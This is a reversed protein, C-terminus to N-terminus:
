LIAVFKHITEKAKAILIHHLIRLYYKKIPIIVGTAATDPVAITAKVLIYIDFYDCLGLACNKFLVKENTNYM